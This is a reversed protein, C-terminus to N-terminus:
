KPHPKLEAVRYTDGDIRFHVRWDQNIRAQWRDEGEEYKKAMCDLM